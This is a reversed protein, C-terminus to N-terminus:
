IHCMPCPILKLAEEETEPPDEEDKAKYWQSLLVGGLPAKAEQISQRALEAWEYQVTLPNPSAAAQRRQHEAHLARTAWDVVHQIQRYSAGDAWTYSEANPKQPDFVDSPMEIYWIAFRVQQRVEEPTMGHVEATSLLHVFRGDLQKKLGALTTSYSVLRQAWVFEPMGPMADFFFEGGVFIRAGFLDDGKANSLRGKEIEDDTEPMPLGHWNQAISTDKWLPVGPAHRRLDVPALKECEAGRNFERPSRQLLGIIESKRQYPCVTCGSRSRTQYSRPIGITESLKRYVWARDVGLDVFPMETEVEPLAFALRDAEDARVGVFMWKQRGEFQKIWARFPVLKLERTCWRDRPSPLFGKYEDILSFLSKEGIREIRKGLWIELRDLAEITEKEEAGTDTFVMRFDIEPAIEHLLIALATSDAGGSVPLLYVDTEPNGPITYSATNVEPALSM